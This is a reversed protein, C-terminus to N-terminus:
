EHSVLNIVQDVSRLTSIMTAAQRAETRSTTNGSITAVGNKIMIMLDAAGTDKRHSSIAASGAMDRIIMKGTVAGTTHTTLTPANM